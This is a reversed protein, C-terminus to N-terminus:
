KIDNSKFYAAWVQQLVVLQPDISNKFFYERTHKKENATAATTNEDFEDFNTYDQAMEIELNFLKILAQRLEYSGGTDKMAELVPINITCYDQLSLRIPKIAAWNRKPYIEQYKDTMGKALDSMKMFIGGLKNHMQKPTLDQALAHGCIGLIIAGVITWRKLFAFNKEMNITAFFLKM